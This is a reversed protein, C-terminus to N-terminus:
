PQSRAPVPNRDESSDARTWPRGKLSGHRYAYVRTFEAGLLFIQAAYYVWILLIAVSAAAGFTSTIATRGIYQGILLKGLNFLLATVIAGLWVDRWAIPVRPILKYILMFSVTLFVFSLSKGASWCGSYLTAMFSPLVTRPPLFSSLAWTFGSM